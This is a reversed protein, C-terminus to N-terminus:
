IVIGAPVFYALVGIFLLVTYFLKRNLQHPEFYRVLLIGVVLGIPLATLPVVGLMMPESFKLWLSGLILCAVLKLLYSSDNEFIVEKIHNPFRRRSLRPKRARNKNKAM